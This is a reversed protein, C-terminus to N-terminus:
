TASSPVRWMFWIPILALLFIGCAILFGDQFAANSSQIMVTQDLFSAAAPM